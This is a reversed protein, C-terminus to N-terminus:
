QAAINKREKIDFCAKQGCRLYDKERHLIEFVGSTFPSHSVQCHGCEIFRQNNPEWVSNDVTPYVGILRMGILSYVWHPLLSSNPQMFHLKKETGSWISWKAGCGTRFFIQCQGGWHVSLAGGSNGNSWEVERGESADALRVRHHSFHRRTWM